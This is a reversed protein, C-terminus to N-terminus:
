RVYGQHIPQPQPRSDWKCTAIVVSGTASLALTAIFSRYLFLSPSPM